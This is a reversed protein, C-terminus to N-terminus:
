QTRASGAEKLAKVVKDMDDRSIRLTRTYLPDQEISIEGQSQLKEMMNEVVRRGFGTEASVINVAQTKTFFPTPM